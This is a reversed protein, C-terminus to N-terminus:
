KNLLKKAREVLMKAFEVRKDSAVATANIEYNFTGSFGISKLGRMADDWDISGDGIPMHDDLTGMNDNVHLVTLRRGIYSISESMRAGITNAHGFDFCVSFGLADAAECVDEVSACYRIVSGDNNYIPMNELAISVGKQVAYEAFPALHTLTRDRWRERNYVTANEQVTSPHLVAYDVGIMKAADIAKYMKECFIPLVDPNRCIEVSFPLHCLKIPIQLQLSSSILYEVYDDWPGSLKELPKMSFDAADFGSIKLIELGSRLDTLVDTGSQFHLNTSSSILM